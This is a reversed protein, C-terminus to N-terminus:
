LAKKKFYLVLSKGMLPNLAKELLRTALPKKMIDWVLMQHFARVPLAQENELGFLCKLWWYPAHLAHAHHGGLCTMGASEVLHRVEKKTYIRIHGGPTNYYEKSLAWCIREPWSRPVTVALVGQPHLVRTIEAVAKKNDPVHELVESCVVVRFFGDEFPLCTSDGALAGWSGRGMNEAEMAKLMKKTKSVNEPDLDLGVATVGPLLYAHCTHRGEGCGVDLFADGPNLPFRKFDVTLM